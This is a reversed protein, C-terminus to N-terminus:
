VQAKRVWAFTVKPMDKRSANRWRRGIEARAAPALEDLTPASIRFDPKGEAVYGNGESERVELYLSKPPRSSAVIQIDASAVPTAREADDWVYALTLELPSGGGLGERIYSRTAEDIGLLTPAAVKLNDDEVSWGLYGGDKRPDVILSYGEAAKRASIPKKPKGEPTRQAQRRRVVDQVETLVLAIAFIRVTINPHQSDYWLVFPVPILFAVDRLGRLLAGPQEALPKGKAGQTVWVFLGLGIIAALLQEIDGASCPRGAVFCFSKSTIVLTM